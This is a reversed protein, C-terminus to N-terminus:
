AINANITPVGLRGFSRALYGIADFRRQNSLREEILTDAETPPSNDNKKRQSFDPMQYIRMIEKGANIAIATILEINISSLASKQM